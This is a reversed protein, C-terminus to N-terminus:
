CRSPQDPLREYRTSLALLSGPEWITAAGVAQGRSPAAQGVPSFDWGCPLDRLLSQLLAPLNSPLIADDELVLASSAQGDMIRRYTKLHSAYCGIARHDIIPAKRLAIHAFYSALDAPVDLGDVAPVREFPMALAHLQQSIAAMRDTSRDLNIVFTTIM